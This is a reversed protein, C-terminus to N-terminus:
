IGPDDDDEPPFPQANYDTWEFETPYYHIGDDWNQTGDEGVYDPPTPEWNGSERFAWHTATSYGYSSFSTVSDCFATAPDVIKVSMSAQLATKSGTGPVGIYVTRQGEPIDDYTNPIAFCGLKWKTNTKNDCNQPTTRPFGYATMSEGPGRMHVTFDDPNADAYNTDACLAIHDNWFPAPCQDGGQPYENTSPCRAMYRFLKKTRGYPANKGCITCTCRGGEGQVKYTHGDSWKKYVFFPGKKPFSYVCSPTSTNACRKACDLKFEPNTYFFPPNPPHAGKPHALLQSSFFCLTATLLLFSNHKMM